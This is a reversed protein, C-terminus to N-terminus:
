LLCLIGNLLVFVLGLGSSDQGSSSLGLLLLFLVFNGLIFNGLSTSNECPLGDVLHLCAFGLSSCDQRLGTGQKLRPSGGAVAPSKRPGMPSQTCPVGM